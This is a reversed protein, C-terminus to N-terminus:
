TRPPASSRSPRSSKPRVPLSRRPPNPGRVASGLGADQRPNRPPAALHESDTSVDVDVDIDLDLGSDIHEEGDNADMLDLPDITHRSTRPPLPGRKAQRMPAAPHPPPKPAPLVVEREPEDSASARDVANKEELAVVSFGALSDATRRLRQALENLAVLDREELPKRKRTREEAANVVGRALMSLQSLALSANRALAGIRALGKAETLQQETERLKQQLERPSAGPQVPQTTDAPGPRKM